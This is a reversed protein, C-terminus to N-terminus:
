FLPKHTCKTVKSGFSVRLGIVPIVFDVLKRTIPGKDCRSGATSALTREAGEASPWVSASLSYEAAQVVWTREQAPLDAFTKNEEITRVAAQRAPCVIQRGDLGNFHPCYILNEKPGEGSM